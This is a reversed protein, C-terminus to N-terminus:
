YSGWKWGWRLDANEQDNTAIAIQETEQKWRDFDEQSLVTLKGRMLYHHTGCMEACAIDFTGTKTTDFWLKGLRGPIVDAKLRVNPLYFSHIVDKSTMQLLVKKGVPIRLDNITIVDDGTNFEGDAGAYRINWLWQQGLVQIRVVEPDNDPFNWFVGKMDNTSVKTIVMDVSLFVLVGIGATIFYHKRETGHTYVAKKHRKASYIWSFGFLGTCLLAFWLLNVYTTYNFLWTILHGNTSIDEPPAMRDWLSMNEVSFRLLSQGSPVLDRVLELLLTKM